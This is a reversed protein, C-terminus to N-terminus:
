RFHLSTNMSCAEGIGVKEVSPKHEKLLGRTRDLAEGVMDRVEQDIIQATAESLHGDLMGFPPLHPAFHPCRYPKDMAMEGPQPTDFSLAGVKASM